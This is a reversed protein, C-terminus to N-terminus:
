GWAVLLTVFVPLAVIAMLWATGNFYDGNEGDRSDADPVAFPLVRDGDVFYRYGLSGLGRLVPRSDSASHDDALRDALRSAADSTRGENFNM